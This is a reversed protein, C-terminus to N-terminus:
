EEGEAPRLVLPIVKVKGRNLVVKWVSVEEYPFTEAVVIFECEEITKSLKTLFDKIEEDYPPFRPIWEERDGSGFGMFFWKKRATTLDIDVYSTSYRLIDGFNHEKVLKMFGEPDVIKVEDDLLVWRYDIEM